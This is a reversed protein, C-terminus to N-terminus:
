DYSHSHFKSILLLFHRSFESEVMLNVTIKTGFELKIEMKIEVKIYVEFDVEVALLFTLM